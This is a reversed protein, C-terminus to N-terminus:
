SGAHRGQRRSTISSRAGTNTKTRGTSARPNVGAIRAMETLRSALAPIPEHKGNEWGNVTGFSVQLEGALKAQTLGLKQRLLKSLAGYDVTDTMGGSSPSRHNPSETRV